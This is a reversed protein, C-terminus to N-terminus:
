VLCIAVIVMAQIANFYIETEVFNIDILKPSMETPTVNIDLPMYRDAICPPLESTMKEACISNDAMKPLLSEIYEKNQLIM